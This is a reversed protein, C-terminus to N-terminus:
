TNEAVGRGNPDILYAYVRAEGAYPNTPTPGDDGVTQEYTARAEDESDFLVIGLGDFLIQLDKYEDLYPAAKLIGDSSPEGCFSIFLCWKGAAKALEEAAQASHLKKM